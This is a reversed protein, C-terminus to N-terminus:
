KAFIKIFNKQDKRNTYGCHYYFQHAKERYKGDVANAM